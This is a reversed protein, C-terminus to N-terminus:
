FRLAAYAARTRKLAMLVTLMLHVLLTTIIASLFSNIPQNNERIAAAAILFATTIIGILISYSVNAQLQDILTALKGSKPLRPDDNVRLGMSFIHILLGFLLATFVAIGALISAPDQMKFDFLYCAIGIALPFAYFSLYDQRRLENTRQDRFTDLHDEVLPLISWKASM